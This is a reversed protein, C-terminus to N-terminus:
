RKRLTLGATALMFSGFLLQLVGSPFRCALNGGLVGGAIGGVALWKGQRLDINGKTSHILAGSLAVPIIVLLSIGQAMKQDLGLLFVVAPVMILGGGVGLLGSIGGAFLGVVAVVLAAMTGDTIFHSPAAPHGVWFTARVGKYIMGVAVLFFLIGFLQKLRSAPLANAIKAGIVAGIVGGVALEASIRVDVQRALWYPALTAAVIPLMVALSTGHAKHQDFGMLFVMAPVLLIGGGVGMLGTLLGAAAGIAVILVIRTLHRSKGDQTVIRDSL